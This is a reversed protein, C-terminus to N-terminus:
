SGSRAHLAWGADPVDQEGAITTVELENPLFAGVSPLLRLVEGKTEPSWAGRPLLNGSASSSWSNQM